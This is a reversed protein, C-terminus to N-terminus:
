GSRSSSDQSRQSHGVQQWSGDSGPTQPRRSATMPPPQGGNWPDAGQLPDGQGPSGGVRNNTAGVAIDRVVWVQHASTRPM